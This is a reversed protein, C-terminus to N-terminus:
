RDMGGNRGSRSYEERMWDPMMDPSLREAHDGKVHVTKGRIEDRLAQELAEDARIKDDHENIKEVNLAKVVEARISRGTIQGNEDLNFFGAYGNYDGLVKGHLREESLLANAIYEAYYPVDLFEKQMEILIKHIVFEGNERQEYVSYEPINAINKGLEDQIARSVHNGEQDLNPKIHLMSGNNRPINIYNNAVSKEEKKKNFFKDLFGM